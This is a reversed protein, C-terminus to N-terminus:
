WVVPTLPMRSIAPPNEELDRGLRLCGRLEGATKSADWPGESLRWM